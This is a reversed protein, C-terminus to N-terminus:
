AYEGERGVAPELFDLNVKFGDMNRIRMYGFMGAESWADESQAKLAKYVQSFKASTLPADVSGDVMTAYFPLLLDLTVARLLPHFGFTDVLPIEEPITQLDNTYAYAAYARDLAPGYGMPDDGTTRGAATMLSNFGLTQILALAADRKM